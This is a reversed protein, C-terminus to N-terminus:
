SGMDSKDLLIDVALKASEFHKDLYEMLSSKSHFVCTSGQSIGPTYHEVIFGNSVPKIVIEDNKIM